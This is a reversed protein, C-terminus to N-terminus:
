ALGLISLWITIITMYTIVCLASSIIIINGALVPDGGLESSMAFSSVATPGGFLVGVLIINMPELGVLYAATTMILPLILLKISIAVLTNSLTEKIGDFHFFAGIAVLALPTAMSATMSIFSNIVSPYTINIAASLFGLEIAIILPNKVINLIIEKYKKLGTHKDPPSLAIIALTNFMPIVVLTILAMNIVVEDGFLNLLVPYGIILYNTRFAGQIFSGVVYGRQNVSEKIFTRAALKAIFYALLIAIACFIMLKIQSILFGHSLDISAVKSFVMMPLSIRFVFKTVQNVFSDNVIGIRKVGYGLMIMLFIPVVANFAVQFASM